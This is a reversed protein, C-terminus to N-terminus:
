VLGGTATPHGTLIDPVEATVAATFQLSEGDTYRRGRPARDGQTVTSDPCNVKGADAGAEVATHAAYDPSNLRDQGETTQTASNRLYAWGIIPIRHSDADERVTAVANTGRRVAGCLSATLSSVPADAPPLVAGRDVTAILPVQEVVRGFAQHM